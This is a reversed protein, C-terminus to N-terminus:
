SKQFPSQEAKEPKQQGGGDSSQNYGDDSQHQNEGHCCLVMQIHLWLSRQAAMSTASSLTLKDDLLMRATEGSDQPLIENGM